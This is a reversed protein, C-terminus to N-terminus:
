WLGSPHYRHNHIWKPYIAEMRYHNSHSRLLSLWNKNFVILDDWGAGGRFDAVHFDDVSGLNWGGIWDDQWTGQLNGGETSRLMGLYQTSWNASNYVVLDRRGDGNVDAPWFRDHRRMQWGPLHNQSNDYRRQPVLQGEAVRMMGLYVPGWDQGNFIALDTTGDGDYDLAHLRDRRRMTWFIGGAATPLTEYHRTRLSLGGSVSVYIRFHVQAWTLKDLEAVDDRGEGDIDGVHLEENRGM